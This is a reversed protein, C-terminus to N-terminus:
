ATLLARRLRTISDDDVGIERVYDAISGHVDVLDDIITRMAEPDAALFVPPAAAIRQALKPYEETAWVRLRAIAENTLAYDAVIHEHEVEVAGLVLMALLGTRDKGVACHFVAPLADPAALATIAEAFKAGGSELMQRYAWVLFEADGSGQPGEDHGWTRDIISVNHFGVPHEEHPFRGRTEIEEATRLDVVTRLGLRAVVDLDDGALRGLGDARFLTRWRTTAGSTTPYGGLDRFNHIQTLAVLRDHPESPSTVV